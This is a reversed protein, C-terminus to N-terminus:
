VWILMLGNLAAVKNWVKDLLVKASGFSKQEAKVRGHEHLLRLLDNDPTPVVFGYEYPEVQEGNHRVLLHNHSINGLWCVGGHKQRYAELLGKTTNNIRDATKPNHLVGAHYHEHVTLAHPSYGVEQNTHHEAM